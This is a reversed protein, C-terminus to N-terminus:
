KLTWTLLDVSCMRRSDKNCKGESHCLAQCLHSLSSLAYRLWLQPCLGTYLYLWPLHLIYGTLRQCISDTACTERQKKNWPGLGCLLAKWMSTPRAVETLRKQSSEQQKAEGTVAIRDPQCYWGEGFQSFAKWMNSIEWPDRWWQHSSLAWEEQGERGGQAPGPREWERGKWLSSRSRWRHGQSDLLYVKGLCLITKEIFIVGKCLTLEIGTRMSIFWKRWM